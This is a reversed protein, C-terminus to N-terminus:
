NKRTYGCEYCKYRNYYPDLPSYGPNNSMSKHCYPCKPNGKGALILYWVFIIVGLFIVGFIM